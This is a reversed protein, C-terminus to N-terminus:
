SKAWKSCEFCGESCFFLGKFKKEESSPHYFVECSICRRVPDDAGCGQCKGIYLQDDQENMAEAYYEVDECQYCKILRIQNELDLVSFCNLCILDDQKNSVDLVMFESRVASLANCFLCIHCEGISSAFSEAGRRWLGGRNVKLYDYNNYFISEGLDSWATANIFFLTRVISEAIDENNTADKGKHVIKNRVDLLRALEKKETYSWSRESYFNNLIQSFDKFEDIYQNQKKKLIKRSNGSKLYYYKLFLELAIQSNVAAFKLRGPDKDSESILEFTFDAFDMFSLKLEELTPLSM